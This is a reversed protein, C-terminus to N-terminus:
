LGRVRCHEVFPKLIDCLEELEEESYPKKSVFNKDLTKIGRFQQIYFRKAGQLWRGIALIDDKNLLEPVLTTRFEYDIGSERILNISRKINEENVKVRVVKEYKELPAKIDMAIYDLLGGDILHKLMKPNTGNTDLKTLFGMGKIKALFHPLDKHLTPEGGTVCVGDLFGKRESLFKFIEGEEIPKTGDDFVLEPNHCYRCRFNCGFTFITCAVKGPYDILTLKQLGKIIM